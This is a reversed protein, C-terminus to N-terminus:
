PLNRPLIRSLRRWLPLCSPRRSGLHHCNALLGSLAPNVHARRWGTWGQEAPDGSPGAISMVLPAHWSCLNLTGSEMARGKARSNRGGLHSKIRPKFAVAGLGAEDATDIEVPRGEPQNSATSCPALLRKLSRCFGRAPTSPPRARWGRRPAMEPHSSPAGEGRPAPWRRWEWNHRASDARRRPPGPTQLPSRAVESRANVRDVSTSESAWRQPNCISV